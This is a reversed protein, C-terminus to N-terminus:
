WDDSRFPAVPLGNRGYLNRKAPNYTFAYRVAVPAAVQPSSAVVTDGEIMARAPWFRGDAGAVAVEEVVGDQREVPPDTGEKTAAMLGDGVHDLHVFARGARFEARAFTPGRWAVPKDYVHALAIAALRRAMDFKNRPHLGEDGVDITVAMGTHPLSLCRAQAERVLPWGIPVRPPPGCAGGLNPLQVFYFPLEPRGFAARWGEILAGLKKEYALGDDGNSEGQYWIVGRVPMRALPAIMGNFMAGRKGGHALTGIAALAGAPLWNEITAGGWAPRVLGIAIGAEQHLRQGFFWPVASFKPVTTSGSVIWDLRPMDAVPMDVAVNVVSACRIAPLNMEGPDLPPPVRDFGTAMNSQGACIWVDGMLVDRVAVRAGGAVVDLMLPEASEALPELRCSWRGDEDATAEATRPGLSVRVLANAPALGWVVVPEGRQLVMHDSFVGALQLGADAAVASPSPLSAAIACFLPLVIWAERM